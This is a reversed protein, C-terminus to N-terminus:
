VQKPQQVSIQGSSRWIIETPFLRLIPSHKCTIFPVEKRPHHNHKEMITNAVAEIIVRDLYVAVGEDDVEEIMRIM